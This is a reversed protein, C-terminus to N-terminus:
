ALIQQWDFERWLARLDLWANYPENTTLAALCTLAFVLLIALVLRATRDVRLM